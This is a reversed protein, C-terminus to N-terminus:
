VLYKHCIFAECFSLLKYNLKIFLIHFCSSHAECNHDARRLGRSDCPRVSVRHYKRICNHKCYCFAHKSDELRRAQKKKKACQSNRRGCGVPRQLLLCKSMDCHSFWLHLYPLSPQIENSQKLAKTNHMSAWQSVTVSNHSILVSNSPCSLIHATVLAKQWDTSCGSDAQLVTYKFINSLFKKKM